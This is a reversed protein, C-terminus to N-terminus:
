TFRLRHPVSHGPGLLTLPSLFRLSCTRPKWYSVTTGFNFTQFESRVESGCPGPFNSPLSTLAFGLGRFPPCPIPWKHAAAAEGTPRCHQHRSLQHSVLLLTLLLGQTTRVAMAKGEVQVQFFTYMVRTNKVWLKSVPQTRLMAVTGGSALVM